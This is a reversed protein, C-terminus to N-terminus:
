KYERIRFKLDRYEESFVSNYPVCGRINTSTLIDYSFVISQIAVTYLLYNKIKSRDAQNKMIMGYCPFIPIIFYWAIRNLILSNGGILLLILGVLIINKFAYDQEKIKLIIFTGIAVFVSIRIRAFITLHHKLALNYLDYKEYGDVLAFYTDVENTVSDLMGSWFFALSSGLLIFTITRNIHIFKLPYVILLFISSQHFWYALIITAIFHYPKNEKVFTYSILALSLAASQRIWDWSIFIYGCVILLLLGHYHCKYKNFVYYLSCVLIISYTLNCWFFNQSSWSFLSTLICFGIEYRGERWNYVEVIKHTRRFVDALMDASYWYGEYDNGIDFRLASLLFLTIYAWQIKKINNQKEGKHAFYLIGGFVIIYFLYSSIM